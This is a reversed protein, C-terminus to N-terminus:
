AMGFTWQSILGEKELQWLAERDLVHSDENGRTGLTIHKFTGNARRFRSAAMQGLKGDDTSCSRLGLKELRPLIEHSPNDDGVRTTLAEVITNSLGKELLELETLASFNRSALQEALYGEETMNTREHILSFYKLSCNSRELMRQLGAWVAPVTPGDCLSDVTSLNCLQPLTLWDLVFNSEEVHRLVLYRLKPLTVMISQVPDPGCISFGLTLSLLSPSNAIMPLISLDSGFAFLTLSTLNQSWMPNITPIVKLSQPETLRCVRLDSGPGFFTVAFDYLFTGDNGDFFVSLTRLATLSGPQIYEGFLAPMNMNRQISSSFEFSTCRSANGALLKVIEKFSGGLVNSPHYRFLIDLACVQSRELWLKLLHVQRYTPTSIFISAWMTPTDLILNRWQSCVHTLLLPDPTDRCLKHTISTITHGTLGTLPLPRCLSPHDHCSTSFALIRRLIDPPFAVNISSPRADM